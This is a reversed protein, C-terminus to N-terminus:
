NKQEVLIASSINMIPSESRQVIPKSCYLKQNMAYGVLHANLIHCM